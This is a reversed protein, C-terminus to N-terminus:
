DEPMLVSVPLGGTSPNHMCIVGKATVSTSWLHAPSLKDASSPRPAGCKTANARGEGKVSQECSPKWLSFNARALAFVREYSAHACACNLACVLARIFANPM